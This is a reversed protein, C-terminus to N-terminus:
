SLPVPQYTVSKRSPPPLFLTGATSGFVPAASDALAPAAESSVLADGDADAWVESEVVGAADGTGEVAADVAALAQNSIVLM